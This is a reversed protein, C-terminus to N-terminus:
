VRHIPDRNPVICIGTGMRFHSTKCLAEVQPGSMYRSEVLREALKSVVNWHEMLIQRTIAEFQRLSAEPELEKLWACAMKEDAACEIPDAAGSFIEEACPGGICIMIKAEVHARWARPSFRWRASRRLEDCTVGGNGEGDITIRRIARGVHFAVLGHGAEHHASIAAQTKM